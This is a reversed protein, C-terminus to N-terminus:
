NYVEQEFEDLLDLLNDEDDEDNKGKDFDNFWQEIDGFYDSMNDHSEMQLQVRETNQLAEPYSELNFENEELQYKLDELAVARAALSSEDKALAVRRLEKLDKAIYNRMKNNM